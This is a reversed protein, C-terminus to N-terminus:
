KEPSDSLWAYVDNQAACRECRVTLIDISRRDYLAKHREMVSFGGKAGCACTRAAVLEELAAASAAHLATGPSDGGPTAKRRFPLVSAGSAHLATAPSTGPGLRALRRFAVRRRWLRLEVVGAWLGWIGLAAVVALGMWAVGAPVGGGDVGGAVGGARAHVWVDSAQRVEDVAELYGAVEQPTLVDRRSHYTHTVRLENGSIECAVELLFAPRDLRTTCDSLDVTPAPRVRIVHRVHVPHPLSFPSVRRTTEPEVLRDRIAAASLDRAGSKWFSPLQYTESVVLSTPTATTRPGSSAPPVSTPTPM